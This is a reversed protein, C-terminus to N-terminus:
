GLRARVYSRWSATLKGPTTHLVTRLSRQRVQGPPGDGSGAVRYLRVLQRRGHRHAILECAMWASEYARTLHKSKGDFDERGPLKEPQHGSRVAATLERAVSRESLSVGHYGVYDAFGEVLWMPVADDTFKRTAVHALEHRLVVKRGLRSLKAFNQPNVIVRDGTGPPPVGGPGSAVTALATIQALSAHNPSLRRAQRQTAPVLVVAHHSWTGGWVRSVVPVAREMTEAMQRLREVHSGLGIVLVHRRRLVHIGGLDWIRRQSRGSVGAVRWGHKGGAFTLVRKDTVTKKDFGAFRYSVRVPSKWERSGAQPARPPSSAKGSALEYKWAGLPLLTMNTFFRRQARRFKRGSAAVTAMFAARDHARIARARKRLLRRVQAARRDGAPSSAPKAAGSPGGPGATSDPDAARTGRLVPDPMARAHLSAISPSSGGRWPGAAQYLATGGAAVVDVVLVTVLVRPLWRRLRSRRHRPERFM